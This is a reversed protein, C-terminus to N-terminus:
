AEDPTSGLQFRLGLVMLIMELGNYTNHLDTRALPVIGIVGGLGFLGPGNVVGTQMHKAFIYGHELGHLLAIALLPYVWPNGRHTRVLAVALVAILLNFGLHSIENDFAPGLLASGTITKTIHEVLHGLQAGVVYWFLGVESFPRHAREYVHQLVSTRSAVTM